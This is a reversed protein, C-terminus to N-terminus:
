STVGLSAVLRDTIAVSHEQEATLDRSCLFGVASISIMGANVAGVDSDLPMELPPGWAFNAQFVESREEHAELVVRTGDRHSERAVRTRCVGQIEHLPRNPVNVNIVVPDDPLDVALSAAVRRAVGAATSWLQGRIEDHSTQGFHSTTPASQSVAIGSVGYSRGVIAAGVTGSHYVNRGTNAGPNIGSVILDFKREFMNALALMVCLAPPGDISWAADIDHISRRIVTPRLRHIAGIAVSSGSYEGDPACVTVHGIETLARALEHLGVSEIGDDNTVLINM